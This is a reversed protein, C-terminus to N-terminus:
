TRHAFRKSKLQLAVMATTGSGGFPDLVLDGLKTGALICPRILKPPFTAFHAEKYPATAVTWVSRKNRKEVLGRVAASFSANQRPHKARAAHENDRDMHIRSNRGPTKGKERGNRHFAGHAGPGTDWGDPMKYAKPNVGNGRTHANGTVPEKIAEADFYYRENRSLLFLYKHSKTPRDRVSESMPNPKHWIIDCRLYWGAAQLAFALRWPMGCLDKAKLGSAPLRKRNQVIASMTGASIRPCSTAGRSGTESYGGANSAYSDGMNIWCTGDKRLVRRVQEFVAVMKELFAEPTAELGIQGTVGYDRLGWYPPSTVCCQVSEDSLLSLQEIADGVRIDLTPTM